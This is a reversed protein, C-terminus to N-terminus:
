TLTSKFSHTCTYSLKSQSQDADRGPLLLFVGLRKTDWVSGPYGGARYASHLSGMAVQSRGRNRSLRDNGTEWRTLNQNRQCQTWPCFIKISLFVYITSFLIFKWGGKLILSCFSYNCGASTGIEPNNEPLIVDYVTPFYQVVFQNM